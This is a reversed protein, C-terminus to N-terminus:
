GTPIAVTNSRVRINLARDWLEIYVGDPQDSGAPAAVWIDNLNSPSGLACFGYLRGKSADFIEVWTRSASTNLGCPPLDPRPEFLEPAFATWNSVSLDYYIFDGGSTSGTSSGDLVLDPEPFSLAVRISLDATDARQGQDTVVVRFDVVGSALPTGEIAGSALVSLGDPLNGDLLRWDYPEAGGSADLAASYPEGTRGEPLTATQISPPETSPPQTPVGDVTSGKSLDALETPGEQGCGTALLLTTALGGVHGVNWRNGRGRRM